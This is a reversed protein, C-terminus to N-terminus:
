AWRLLWLVIDYKDTFGWWEERGDSDSSFCRTKGTLNINCWDWYDHKYESVKLPKVKVFWQCKPIDHEAEWLASGLDGLGKRQQNFMDSFEKRNMM